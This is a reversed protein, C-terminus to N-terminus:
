FLFQKALSTMRVCTVHLFFFFFVRLSWYFEQYILFDSQYDCPYDKLSM